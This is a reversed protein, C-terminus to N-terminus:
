RPQCQRRSQGLWLFPNESDVVRTHSQMAMPQQKFEKEIQKVQANRNFPINWFWLQHACSKDSDLGCFKWLLGGTKGM